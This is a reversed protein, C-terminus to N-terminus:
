KKKLAVAAMSLLAVVGLAAALGVVDNAGTDPNPNPNQSGGNSGSSGGTIIGGDTIEKNTIVYSGLRSANFSLTLEETDLTSTLKYLKSDQFLYLHFKGGWDETDYLDSVDVTVRGKVGFDPRGPFNLFQFEQGEYKLAIDKNFNYNYSMNIDNKMSGTNVEFSWKGDESVMVGKRYRNAEAFAELVKQSLIPTSNSITLEEGVQDGPMAAFGIKVNQELQVLQQGGRTLRLRFAAEAEQTGYQTKAELVLKHGADTEEVKVVLANGGKTVTANLRGGELDKLPQGDLLIDYEYTEGPKLQVGAAYDKLTLQSAPATTDDAFATVALTAIMAVALLMSLLKKM